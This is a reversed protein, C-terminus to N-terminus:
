TSGRSVESQRSRRGERGSGPDPTGRGYGVGQEPTGRGSGSVVSATSVESFRGPSGMQPSRPVGMPRWEDQAEESHHAQEADLEAPDRQFPTYPTFTLPHNAGSVEVADKSEQYTPLEAQAM